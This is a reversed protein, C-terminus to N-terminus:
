QFLLAWETLGDASVETDQPLRVSRLFTVEVAESPRFNCRRAEVFTESGRPSKRGGSCRPSGSNFRCFLPANDRNTRTVDSTRLRLIAPNENRYHEFHRAGYDIPKCPGGPWFFVRTNLNEVLRRINWGKEFEINGQHLPAQDRLRVLYGEIRLEVHEIRREDILHEQKARSILEAACYLRRETRIMPLNSVFTLHYLYQRTNSFQAVTFPMINVM